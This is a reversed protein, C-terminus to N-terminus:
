EPQSAVTVVAPRLLQQDSSYGPRIVELITGPEADPAERAQAAEHRAPDFQEGVEAFRHYGLGELTALAQRHVAEVGAVISRPDAEAHRLALELHDLVPLWVSMVRDRQLGRVEALMREYRKRQNDLEAMARLWRDRLEAPTEQPPEGVPRPGQGEALPAEQPEAAPGQRPAGPGPAAEGATVSERPETAPEQSATGPDPAQEDATGSKRAEAVSEQGPTGPGATGADATARFREQRVTRGQPAHSRAAGGERTGARGDPPREGMGRRGPEPTSSGGDGGQAAATRRKGEADEVREPSLRGGEGQPFDRVENM